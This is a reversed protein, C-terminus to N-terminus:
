PRALEAASIAGEIGSQGPRINPRSLTGQMIRQGRDGLPLARLHTSAGSM